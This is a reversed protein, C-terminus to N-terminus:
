EEEIEIERTTSTLTAAGNTNSSSSSNNSRIKGRAALRKSGKAATIREKTVAICM